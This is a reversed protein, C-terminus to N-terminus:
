PASVCAEKCKILTALMDNAPTKVRLKRGVKSIYGNLADIETKRGRWLDYLMSPRHHYTAPVLRRYFFRLYAEADPPELSIRMRDAVRYIERVVQDMWFRTGEKEALAGYHVQLLSALPNLACNYIVKAWLPKRVDSVAHTKLGCSTFLKALEESRKSVGVNETEGVLNDGGWVTVRIKGPTLEVGFIVRAAMVQGAPFYRHLTDLNGLGNQVSMVVGVNSGLRRLESCAAATDNSKVTLLILDFRLCTKRLAAFNTFVRFRQFRHKGLIGSVLLGRRKVPNL